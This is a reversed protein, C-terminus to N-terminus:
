RVMRGSNKGFNKLKRNMGSVPAPGEDLSAFRALMADLKVCPTQAIDISRRGVLHGSGAEPFPPFTQTSSQM